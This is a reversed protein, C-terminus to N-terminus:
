DTNDMVTTVDRYEPFNPNIGFVFCIGQYKKVVGDKSHRHKSVDDGKEWAEQALKAVFTALGEDPPFTDKSDAWLHWFRKSFMDIAHRSINIHLDNYDSEKLKRHAVDLLAKPFDQTIMWRLYSNPLQDVPTGAYKGVDIKPIPTEPNM